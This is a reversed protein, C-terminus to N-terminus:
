FLGHRERWGQGTRSSRQLWYGCRLVGDISGLCCVFGSVESGCRAATIRYGSIDGPHGALDTLHQFKSADILKQLRASGREFEVAKTGNIWHEVHDGQVVIRAANFDALSLNM